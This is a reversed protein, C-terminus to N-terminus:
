QWVLGKDIVLPYHRQQILEMLADVNAAMLPIGALAEIEALTDSDSVNAILGLGQFHKLYDQHAALWHKSLADDGIVLMNISLYDPVTRATIVGPSSNSKMPAGFVSSQSEVYEPYPALVSRQPVYPKIDTVPQQIELVDLGHVSGLLLVGSIVALIRM